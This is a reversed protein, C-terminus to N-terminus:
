KPVWSFSKSTDDNAFINFLKSRFVEAYSSAALENNEKM